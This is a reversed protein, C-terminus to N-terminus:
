EFDNESVKRDLLMITEHIVLNSTYFRAHEKAMRRYGQMARNNFQDNIVIGAFWASTDIFVPNSM